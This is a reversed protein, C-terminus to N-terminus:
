LLIITRVCRLLLNSFVFSLSGVFLYKSICSIKAVVLLCGMVFPRCRYPGEFWKFIVKILIRSWICSISSEFLFHRRWILPNSWNFSTVWDFSSLKPSSLKLFDICVFWVCNQRLSFGFLSICTFRLCTPNITSTLRYSWSNLSSLEM